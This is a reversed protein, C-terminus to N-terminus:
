IYFSLDYLDFPPTKSFQTKKGKSDPTGVFEPTEPTRPFHEASEEATDPNNENSKFYTHIKQKFSVYLLM